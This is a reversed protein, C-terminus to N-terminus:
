KHRKTTIRFIRFISTFHKEKKSYIIKAAEYLDDAVFDPHIKHKQDKGAAGTKVLITKCKIREGAKIDSTKDGVLWCKRFDLNFDKKAKNLMGLDPKRCNCHEEIRHPCYYIADANANNQKFLKLMKENVKNYEKISIEGKGLRIQNTVIILKFSTNMLLKLGKVTNPLLRFERPTKVCETKDNIVGDRDLFIAKQKKM